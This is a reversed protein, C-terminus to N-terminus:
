KDRLYQVCAAIPVGLQPYNPYPHPNGVQMDGKTNYGNENDITVSADVVYIQDAERGDFTKIVNERVHWMMANQRTTFDGNENNLTGCSTCPTCLLLKGKPAAKIYSALLTEMQSNWTAFDMPLSKDRFDNLGLMVVLFDPAEFDWMKLYKGYDFSWEEPESCSIWKKGNWEVYGGNFMLDGKTPNKLFGDEGFRSVDYDGCDYRKYFPMGKGGTTAVEVAIKWFTVNGWYHQKGSPQFYPNYFTESGTKNSFYNALTWGGRGEHSYGEADPVGRLGILKVNPVYGKDIFADRFYCGKTFSDGLFQVKVEGGNTAPDAACIRMQGSEVSEFSRGDYLKVEITSGSEPTSIAAYKELRGGKGYTADGEFRVIDGMLDEYRTFTQVYLRNEVGKMMYQKSPLSLMQEQASITLTSVLAFIVVLYNKNM